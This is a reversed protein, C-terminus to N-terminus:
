YDHVFKVDIFEKETKQQVVNESDKVMNFNDENNTYLDM